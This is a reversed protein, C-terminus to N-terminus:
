QARPLFMDQYGIEEHMTEVTFGVKSYLKRAATRNFDLGVTLWFRDFLLHKRTPSRFIGLVTRLAGEGYGNKRYGDEVELSGIEIIRAKSCVVSKRQSYRVAIHGVKQKAHPGEKAIIDFSFNSFGLDPFDEAERCKLYCPSEERQFKKKKEIGPNKYAEGAEAAAEMASAPGGSSLYLSLLAALFLSFSKGTNLM